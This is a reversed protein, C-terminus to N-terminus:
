NTNVTWGKAILSTKATIGAGTPAASTGGSLDLVGDEVGSGDIQTLIANVTNVNLKNDIFYVKKVYAPLKTVDFSVINNRSFDVWSCFLPLRQNFQITDLGGEQLEFRNLLMPKNITASMNFELTDFLGAVDVTKSFFDVAAGTTVDYSGRTKHSFAMYLKPIVNAPPATQSGNGTFILPTQQYEGSGQINVTFQTIGNFPTSDSVSTIIFNGVFVNTDKLFKVEIQIQADQIERLTPLSIKGIEDLTALGQLTGSFSNKEPIFSSYVDLGVVELVSTDTVLDCNTACAYPIYQGNVNISVVVDNGSIKNSM